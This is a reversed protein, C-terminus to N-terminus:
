NTKLDCPMSCVFVVMCFRSTEMKFDHIKFSFGMFGCLLLERLPVASPNLYFFGM